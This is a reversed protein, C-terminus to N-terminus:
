DVIGDGNEGKQELEKIRHLVEDDKMTQLRRFNNESLTPDFQCVSRFPCYTCATQQDHQFPNLKVEGETISLGANRILHRSYGQLNQFMEHQATKSNAYFGGNSKLGAPIIRSHGKDLGTDMMRVIDENELLLGQMKFQKFIENEIAADDLKHKGSIMPNHVHFYLVGAPSAHSGLWQESSSIVVDLYTLMQLALGYYVEVLNLGKASSKYDIIRLFLENEQMARDVRDIRGQLMLEFGNPLDLSLPPLKHDGKEGFGVELGVPAFGSNKAQESLVYTARAVVDQLKQQIYRYRNSSQLIQHQLVASLDGVAQAAYTNSQERDLQAFDKKEEQLRETIQRLAEHFLQGIDPADLKYTKREELGLSYNAFHQYSCRHFMEMRSVSAKVQQSHLQSATEKNLNVPKNRYFLSGLVKETLGGKQEHDIYWNLVNWWVNQMSYGKLYRSLQSTLASRTKLPTTIFRLAEYLDDPDQLHFHFANPFLEEIRNVVHSRTKKKGEENSLPYSIWLQDRPMTLALYVYFRDDLLQRKGSDALRIGQESLLDREEESIMGDSQPKMPWSGETVGLLFAAMIGTIRSRDVSGVIVHDMSPPVHAFRLSELGSEITSRFIELSMCEDGVMEVMEDLLQLVAEWVQEQERGKEIKGAEDFQDRWTELQQSVQMSELWIYIARGKDAISEARRLEDDFPKLARTVQRRYCNIRYEKQKEEDTKAGQEFGRFRQYGWDEKDCWQSKSRVGYELVYNELEDIGEEHLPYELDTPPVFGTKLLRFVADYRWNGEVVDLGSRILEVLPHNLMTRKEDIFVPIDYDHFITAILDHYVDPERMLIAMDKYRYGKDRVLTLIEQAVGEVEARPHVAEAVCIPVEGEYEHAPRQDYYTELHAFYPRDDFRRREPDLEEIGTIPEGIELALAKLQQFTEKTEYFLDLEPLTDEDTFETTLAVNVCSTKRMLQEIVSLEQPTFSHFGDIYVEAGDLFDAEGIKNALLQLQDEGDIYQDELAHMLRDYIYSLDDLKDRLATESQQKHKFQDMHDMQLQLVEPTIRYRKFETILGELQEIFGQKEIAKQFVHWDSKREETIKRLMMQIGTSSIFKRIGGGTEQLVRWALRSFSFVQARITGEIGERKLLAYEQQFTMQDPVLYIIPPGQPDHKLKSEIEELCRTSKGAGSRGLLFRIGM